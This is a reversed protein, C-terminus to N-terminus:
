TSMAKRLYLARGIHDADPATAADLDSLTWALLFM